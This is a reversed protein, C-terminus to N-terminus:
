HVIAVPCQAHELLSQSVSGLVLGALPSRGRSGVVVIEAAQSAETLAKAPPSTVVQVTAAVGAYKGALADVTERLPAETSSKDHDHTHVVTVSSGLQHAHDFGFELAAHSGPSGDAGIVVQQTHAAQPERVVVVPGHAHRTVHQSVSGRVMSALPGHTRAGLATLHAHQTERVLAPGPSTAVTRVTVAAASGDLLQELDRVVQAGALEDSVGSVHMVDLVSVLVVLPRDLHCALREAWTLAVKSHPSGGYGLVIPSAMATM